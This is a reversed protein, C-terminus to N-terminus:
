PVHRWSRRNVIRSVSSRSVGFRAALAPLIGCRPGRRLRGGQMLLALTRMEIVQAETLVAQVCREGRVFKAPTYVYPKPPSLAQRKRQYPFRERHRRQNAANRERCRRCHKYEPDECRGRCQTDCAGSRRSCRPMREDQGDEMFSPMQSM